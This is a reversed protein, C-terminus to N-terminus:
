AKNLIKIQQEIVQAEATYVQVMFANNKSKELQTLKMSYLRELRAVYEGKTYM